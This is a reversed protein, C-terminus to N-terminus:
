MYTYTCKPGRQPPCLTNYRTHLIDCSKRTFSLEYPVVNKFFHDNTFGRLEINELWRIIKKRHWDQSDTMSWDMHWMLFFFRLYTNSRDAWNLLLFLFVFFCFADTIYNLWCTSKKLHLTKIQPNGEPFVQRMWLYKTLIYQWRSYWLWMSRSSIGSMALYVWHLMLHYLKDTVQSLVTTKEPCEPKSWRYFQVGRYLQCITLLPTLM